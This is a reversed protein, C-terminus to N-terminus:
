WGEQIPVSIKRDSTGYATLSETKVTIQILLEVGGAHPAKSSSIHDGPVETTIESDHAVFNVISWDDM